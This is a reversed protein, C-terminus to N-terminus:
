LMEIVELLRAEASAMGGFFKGGAAKIHGGGNFHERAMANVDIDCGAESRLSLKIYEKTEILLAAFCIGKISMAMNVVGETDGIQYDFRDKEEQTLTIYAAGREPMVRMKESLLYGVMKLRSQSQSNYIKNNIGVLDIGTGSLVALSEYLERDLNGFMFGGTDTNMGLYLASAIEVTLEVKMALLVKFVLLSASSSDVSHFSLDYKPPSQHHDILIRPAFINREIAEGMKDLRSVDNFDVLILLDAAALFATYEKPGSAFVEVDRGTDVFDFHSPMDNPVIFRVDKLPDLQRLAKTMALGSGIADGDPNTHSVVAIRQAASFLSFFKQIKEDNIINKM